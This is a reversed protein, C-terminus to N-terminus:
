STVFEGLVLCPMPTYVRVLIPSRSDTGNQGIRWIIRRLRVVVVLCISIFLAPNGSLHKQVYKMTAQTRLSGTGGPRRGEIVVLTKGEYYPAATVPYDFVGAILVFGAFARLVYSSRLKLM